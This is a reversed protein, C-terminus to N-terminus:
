MPHRALFPAVAEVFAAPEEGVLAHAAGPVIALSAGAIGAALARSRDLPFMRDQGAAVVLTPAAIRPLLPRLDLNELSGLLLDLWAFWTVPMLAFQARRKEYLARNSELFAPSFTRPAMVDLVVRGDGGAAADRVAQRLGTGELHEEAPVVDTATALVLTHVRGGHRAALHVGIFAGFSTGVVHARAIGLADLLEVLDEAHGSLSAPPAGLPLSMLQGRFDCRVVRYRSLLPAAFADWAQMTMLGGNLLLLPEGEGDVRHALITM